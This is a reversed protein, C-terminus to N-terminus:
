SISNVGLWRWGHSFCFCPKTARCLVHKFSSSGIDKASFKVCISWNTAVGLPPPLPMGKGTSPEEGVGGGGGFPLSLFRFDQPKQGKLFAIQGMLAGVGVVFNRTDKSAENCTTPIGVTEVVGQKLELITIGLYLRNCYKWIQGQYCLRNCKIEHRHTILQSVYYKHCYCINSLTYM